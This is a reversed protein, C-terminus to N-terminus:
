YWIYSVGFLIGLFLLCVVVAAVICGVKQSHTVGVNDSASAYASVDIEEADRSTDENEGKKESEEQKDSVAVPEHIATTKAATQPESPQPKPSDTSNNELSELKENLWNLHQEILAKQKLLEERTWNM